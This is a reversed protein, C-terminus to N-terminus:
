DAQEASVKKIGWVHQTNASGNKYYKVTVTLYDGNVEIEAWSSANSGGYYSYLSKDAESVKIDGSYKEQNGAPGNMLYIAGDPNVSYNIENEKVIVEESATFTDNIPHTRSIMHDHGQLVLDVGKQAFLRTLQQKLAQAIQNRGSQSGWKGVSYMPNHMSVITWKQTKNDLENTLWTLQETTLKDNSLLNTNLMIFKVDGFVFSYFFGLSVDTQEPISYNFHNITTNYASSAHDSYTTEHNGSIAMIPTRSLSSYNENLMASWYNEYKGYEVVDGTHLVFSAAGDMAGLVNAFGAGTGAGKNTLDSDDTQSDSVHVFKFSQANPNVATFTAPETSVGLYEDTLVYTYTKGAALTVQAKNVYFDCEEYILSQSLFYSQATTVSVSVAQYKDLMKAGECIKLKPRAPEETTNWTFGYTCTAADYLSLTLANQTYGTKDDIAEYEALTKGVTFTAPASTDDAKGCVCSKKYTLPTTKTAEAFVYDEGRVEQDYVHLKLPLTLDNESVATLTEGEKILIKGCSSCIYHAKVGNQTCTSAIEAVLDESGASHHKAITVDAASAEVYKGKQMLFLKDCKSCEYHTSVGDEDCTALKGNVKVYEHECKVTPEGSSSGGNGGNGGSGCAAQAFSLTLALILATLTKFNKKM